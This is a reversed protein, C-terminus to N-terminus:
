RTVEDGCACRLRSVRRTTYYTNEIHANYPRDQWEVAIVHQHVHAEPTYPWMYTGVDKLHAPREARTELSEDRVFPCPVKPDAAKCERYNCTECSHGDDNQETM